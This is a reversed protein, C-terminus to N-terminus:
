RNLVTHIAGVLSNSPDQSLEWCMMGGFDNREVYKAMTSHRDDYIVFTDDEASYLWPVRARPHWHKVYRPETKLSRIDEYTRTDASDFPQFLGQNEDRVDKFVFGYFPTGLVVKDRAISQDAWYRMSHDVTLLRQWYTPADYAAYLPANFNTASSWSGYFNYNMVNVFDLVDDLKDVELPDINSPIPAAAISLEYTEDDKREADDLQRRLEELLLTFNWPDDERVSGDPYEWNVDIGDFNYERLHEIATQAFRERGEATSAADSMNSGFDAISLMFSTDPRERTLTEFRRLVEPAYDGAVALKVEGNSETELFAYNLHTLDDYLVDRPAYDGAWSPYYGFVRKDTAPEADDDDTSAGVTRSVLPTTVLLGASRLYRRRGANVNENTM